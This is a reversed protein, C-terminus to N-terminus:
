SAVERLRAPAAIRRLEAVLEQFPPIADDRELVTPRGGSLRQALAHLEVVEACVPQDHTDLRHTPLVTHGALHFYRVSRWPIARLWAEADFGHNQGSVFVNNVDVLLECGTREVL